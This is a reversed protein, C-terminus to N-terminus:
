WWFPFAFLATIFLLPWIWWWGVGWGFNGYGWGLPYGPYGFASTKARGTKGASAKNKAKPGAPHKLNKASERVNQVVADPLDIPRMVLHGDHVRDVIGGVVEGDPLLAVVPRGFFAAINEEKIPYQALMQM